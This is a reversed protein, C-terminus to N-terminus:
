SRSPGAHLKLGPVREFDSDIAYVELDNELAVAAILLDSLATTLGTRKLDFSLRAARM